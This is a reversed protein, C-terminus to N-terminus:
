RSAHRTAAISEPSDFLAKTIVGNVHVVDYVAEARARSAHGLRQLAHRPMDVLTIMAQALAGADRVPVLLGNQGPVVTDRCGPADTTLIPRGMAMAELTARPTGERYSPLVFVHCDRIFPRVDQTAGHYRIAGVSVAQALEAATLSAPNDDLPGVLHCEAHPRDERLRAAAAIYERVGKDTILRGVLLFRPPGDPLPAPAYRGLHVGSGNIRVIRAGAPLLGRQRFEAEDDNNQFFIVDACALGARYLGRAVAQVMRAKWGSAPMFAFGLGTIMAAVRPVGALWAAIAGYVVPKITYGLTVDPREAKFLRRLHQLLRLDAAISTGARSIPLPLYRVGWTALREQVWAPGPPALALVQHGQAVLHRLLDGRFNVLSEALSGIVIVKM